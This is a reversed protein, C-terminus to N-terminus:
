GVDSASPSEAQPAEREVSAMEPPRGIAEAATEATAPATRRLQRLISIALAIGALALFLGSGFGLPITALRVVLVLAITGALYLVVQLTHRAEAGAAASTPGSFHATALATDWGAFLAAMSLLTLPFPIGWFTIFTILGVCVTVYLHALRVDHARVMPLSLMWLVATGVSLATFGHLATAVTLPLMAIGFFVISTLIM